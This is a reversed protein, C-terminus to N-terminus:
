LASKSPWGAQDGSPVLIAKVLRTPLLGGSIQTISALPLLSSCSVLSGPVSLSGAQDGSAVLIAKVLGRAPSSSIQAIYESTLEPWIQVIFALPLPWTWRDVTPPRADSQCRM